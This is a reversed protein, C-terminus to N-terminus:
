TLVANGVAGIGPLWAPDLFKTLFAAAEKQGQESFKAFSISRIM